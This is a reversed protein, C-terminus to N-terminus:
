SLKVKAAAARYGAKGLARRSRVIPSAGRSPVMRSFSLTGDHRTAREAYALRFGAEESLFAGRDDDRNPKGIRTLSQALRDRGPGM